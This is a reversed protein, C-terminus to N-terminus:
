KAKESIEDETWGVSQSFPCAFLFRDLLVDERGIGLESLVEPQIIGYLDIFPRDLILSEQAGKRDVSYLSYRV